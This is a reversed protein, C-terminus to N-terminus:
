NRVECSLNIGYSCVNRDHGDKHIKSKHTGEQWFGCKEFLRLSATNCELINSYIHRLGLEQTAYSIIARVADEGYGKGRVSKMLKVFIEAEGNKLDVNSLIIIGLGVSPNEKEAIISRINGSSDSESRLWNLQHEYSVSGGYGGALKPMEQSQILKPLMERDQEEVARLIVKDGAIKM